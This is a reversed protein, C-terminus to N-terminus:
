EFGKMQKRDQQLFNWNRGVLDRSLCEGLSDKEGGPSSERNKELTVGKTQFLKGSDKFNLQNVQGNLIEERSDAGM